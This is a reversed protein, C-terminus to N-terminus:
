RAPNPEVEKAVGPRIWSSSESREFETRLQLGVPLSELFNRSRPIVHDFHTAGGRCQEMARYITELSGRLERGVGANTGAASPPTVRGGTELNEAAALLAQAPLALAPM